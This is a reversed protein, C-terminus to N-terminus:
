MIQCDQKAPVEQLYQREIEQSRWNDLGSVSKELEDKLDFSSKGNNTGAHRAWSSVKSPREAVQESWNLGFVRSNVYHECNNNALCYRGEGHRNNEDWAINKAIEQYNRFPIVPHIRILDFGGGSLFNNWDTVVIRNTDRTDKNKSYPDTFHCIKENGLYIGFHFYRNLLTSKDVKIIDLPKLYDDSDPYDMNFVDGGSQDIPGADIIGVPLANQKVYPSTILSSFSVYSNANPHIALIPNEGDLESRISSAKNQVSSLSYRDYGNSIEFKQLIEPRSKIAPEYVLLWLTYSSNGNIVTTLNKNWWTDFRIIEQPSYLSTKQQVLSELNRQERQHFSCTDEDESIRNYCNFASCLKKHCSKAYIIPYINLQCYSCYEEWIWNIKYYCNETKCYKEGTELQHQSCHWSNKWTLNVCKEQWCYEECKEDFFTSECTQYTDFMEDQVHPPNLQYCFECRPM